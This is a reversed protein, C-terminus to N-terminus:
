KLLDHANVCDYFVGTFTEFLSVRLLILWLVVTQPPTVQLLIIIAKKKIILIITITVTANASCRLQRSKFYPLSSCEKIFLM